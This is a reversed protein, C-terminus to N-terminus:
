QCCAAAYLNRRGRAPNTKEVGGRAAYNAEFRLGACLLFKADFILAVLRFFLSVIQAKQPFIAFGTGADRPVHQVIELRGAFIKAEFRL